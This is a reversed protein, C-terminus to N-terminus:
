NVTISATRCPVTREPQGCSALGTFTGSSSDTEGFSLDTSGAAIAQFQVTALVVTGSAAPQGTTFCSIFAQGTAPDGDGDVLGPEDADGEPGPPSCVFGPGPGGLGDENADPNRALSSGGNVTPAVITNRNYNLIFNFSSLGEGPVNTLVVGVRITDGVNISRSTQIGPESANTDVIFEVGSASANPPAITNPDTSAGPPPDPLDTVVRPPDDVSGGTQAPDIGEGSNLQREADSPTPAGEVAPGSGPTSGASGPTADTEAQTTAAAAATTGPAPTAQAAATGGAGPTGEAAGTGSAGPTGSVATGTRTGSARTPTEDGNEDDDGGGGCAALLALTVCIAATAALGWKTVQFGGVGDGPSKRQDPSLWCLWPNPDYQIPRWWPPPIYSSNVVSLTGPAPAFNQYVGDTQASGARL